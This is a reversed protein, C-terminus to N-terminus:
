IKKNQNIESQEHLIQIIADVGCVFQELGDKEKQHRRLLATEGIPTIRTRAQLRAKL